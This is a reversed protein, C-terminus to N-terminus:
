EADTDTDTDTDTDAPPTDDSDLTHLGPERLLTVTDNPFVAILELHGGLAAVKDGVAAIWLNQEEEVLDGLAEGVWNTEGGSRQEWVQYLRQEVDFLRSYARVRADFEPRGEDPVDAYRDWLRTGSERGRKKKGHREKSRKDKKSRKDRKSVAAEKADGDVHAPAPV